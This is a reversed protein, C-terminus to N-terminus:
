AEAMAGGGRWLERVRKSGSLCMVLGTGRPAQHLLQKTHQQVRQVAHKDAVAHGGDAVEVLNGDESPPHKGPRTRNELHINSSCTDEWRRRAPMSLQMTRAM